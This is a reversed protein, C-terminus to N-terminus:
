LNFVAMYTVALGLLVLLDAGLFSRMNGELGHGRGFPNDQNRFTDLHFLTPKMYINCLSQLCM